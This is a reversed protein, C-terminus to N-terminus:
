ISSYLYSGMLLIHESEADHSCNFATSIMDLSSPSTRGILGWVFAFCFLRFNHMYLVVKHYM